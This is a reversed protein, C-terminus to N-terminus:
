CGQHHNCSYGCDGVVGDLWVNTPLPELADFGDLALMGDDLLTAVLADQGVVAVM